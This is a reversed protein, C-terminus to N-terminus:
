LLDANRRIPTRLSEYAYFFMDSTTWWKYDPSYDDVLGHFDRWTSTPKGGFGHVFLIATDPTTHCLMAYSQGFGDIFKPVRRQAM